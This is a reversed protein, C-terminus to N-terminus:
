ALEGFGRPRVKEQLVPIVRVQGLLVPMCHSLKHLAGLVDQAGLPGKSCLKQKRTLLQGEGLGFWSRGPWSVLQLLPCLCGFYVCASATQEPARSPIFRRKDWRTFDGASPWERGFHADVVM